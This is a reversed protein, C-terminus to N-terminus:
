PDLQVKKPLPVPTHHARPTATGGGTDDNGRHKPHSIGLSFPPKLPFIWSLHNCIPAEVGFCTYFKVGPPDDCGFICWLGDCFPECLVVCISGIKVIVPSFHIRPARIEHRVHLPCANVPMINMRKKCSFIFRAVIVVYQIQRDKSWIWPFEFHRVQCCSPVFGLELWMPHSFSTWFTTEWPEDGPFIIYGLFFLSYPYNRARTNKSDNFIM